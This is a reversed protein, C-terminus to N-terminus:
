NRPETKIVNKAKHYHCVFGGEKRGTGATTPNVYRAVVMSEIMYKAQIWVFLDIGDIEFCRKCHKTMDHPEELKSPLLIM